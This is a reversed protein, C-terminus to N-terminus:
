LPYSTICLSSARIKLYYDYGFEVQLRHEKNCLEVYLYERLALRMIDPLKNIHIRRKENLLSISNLLSSDIDYFKSSKNGSMVDAQGNTQQIYVM